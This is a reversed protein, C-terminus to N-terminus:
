KLERMERVKLHSAPSRFPVHHPSVSPFCPITPFWPQFTPSQARGKFATHGQTVREVEGLRLRRMQLISIIIGRLNHPKLPCWKTFSVQSITIARYSTPIMRIIGLPLKPPLLHSSSMPCGDSHLQPGKAEMGERCGGWPRAESQPEAGSCATETPGTCRELLPPSM